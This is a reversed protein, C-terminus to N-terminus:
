YLKNDSIYVDLRNGDGKDPAGVMEDYASEQRMRQSKSPINQCQRQIDTLSHARVLNGIDDAVYFEENDIIVSAQYLCLDLSHIILTDINQHKALERLTKKM